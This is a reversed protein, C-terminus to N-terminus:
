EEGRARIAEAYGHKDHGHIGIAHDEATLACFEREHEAVLRAFKEVGLMVSGDGIITLGCELAMQRIAENTM